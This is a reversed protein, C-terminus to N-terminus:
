FGARRRHLDLFERQNVPSLTDATTPSTQLFDIERSMRGRAESPDVAGGVQVMYDATAAMLRYRSATAEFWEVDALMRARISSSLPRSLVREWAVRSEAQMRLSEDLGRFQARETTALSFRAALEQIGGRRYRAILPAVEEPAYFPPSWILDQHLLWYLSNTGFMERANDASRAMTEHIARWEAAAAGYRVSFYRAIAEELNPDPATSAASGATRWTAHALLMNTLRRPGPNRLLPHMSAILGSRGATLLEFNDAFHIEDTVGVGAFSSLNHYEVVGFALPARDQWAALTAVLRLNADRDAAPDDIRGSWSREIPYFVHVYNTGALAATVTSNTPPQMTLFYSIGALTVPRALIGAHTAERLRRAVGGYFQLLNDTENGIAAAEPSRDFRNFRDDTPWVNVVDVGAFEPRALREVLWDGFYMAADANGFAPNYYNGTSEIRRRTGDILAFWEPHEEFLGPRSFAEQLLDHEGAWGRLGLLRHLDARAPACLNLRNRALWIAYEDPVAQVGYVWFGRLGIRPAEHLTPWDVPGAIVTADPRLTEYPDHWAFGLSELLRYVGYLAGVRGNATVFVSGSHPTIAYGEDGLAPYDVGRVAAQPGLAIVIAPAAGPAPTAEISANIGVMALHDRLESAAFAFTIATARTGDRDWDINPADALAAEVSIYPDVSVVIKRPM